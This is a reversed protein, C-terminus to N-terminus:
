GAMSFFIERPRYIVVVMGDAEERYGYEYCFNYVNGQATPESQSTFFKTNFGRGILNRLRIRIAQHEDDCIDKLISRNKLMIEHIRDLHEPYSRKPVATETEPAAVSAAKKERNMRNHYNSKCYEDCYKKGLKGAGLVKGCDLCYKENNEVTESAPM